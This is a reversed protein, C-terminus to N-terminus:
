AAARTVSAIRWASGDDAPTLTVRWETEARGPDTRVVAGAADVLEYPGIRDVVDLAVQEPAVSVAVVELRELHLGRAVVGADVYRQLLTSDGALAPSAPADVFDLGDPDGTAFAATWRDDLQALVASWDAEPVAAEAHATEQGRSSDAWQTGAWM